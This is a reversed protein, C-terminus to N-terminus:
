NKKEFFNKSVPLNTKLFFLERKGRKTSDPTHM